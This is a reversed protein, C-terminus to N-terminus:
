DIYKNLNEYLHPISNNIYNITKEIFENLDDFEAENDDALDETLDHAIENFLYSDVGFDEKISKRHHESMCIVIDSKRLLEEDVRKNRHARSDIGLEYLRSITKRYPSEFSYSITGASDVEFDYIGREELFKEMLFKASMSRFVNQTCVFLIRKVM